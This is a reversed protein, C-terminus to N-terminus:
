SCSLVLVDLVFQALSSWGVFTIWAEKNHPFPVVFNLTEKSVTAVVWLFWGVLWEGVLWGVWHSIQASPVTIAGECLDVEIGGFHAATWPARTLQFFWMDLWLIRFKLFALRFERVLSSSFSCWRGVCFAGKVDRVVVVVGQDGEDRGRGVRVVMSIRDRAWGRVKSTGEGQGEFGTFSLTIFGIIRFQLFSVATVGVLLSFFLVSM